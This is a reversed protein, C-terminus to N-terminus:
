HHPAPIRSQPTSSPHPPTSHMLAASYEAWAADLMRSDERPSDTSQHQCDVKCTVQVARMFTRATM